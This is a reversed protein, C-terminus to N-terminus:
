SASEVIVRGKMFPHPTCHYDYEGPENFRVSYSQGKKMMLGDLKEDGVVGAKFAVNHPMAEVNEWTVVDGPKITVEPQQYKLKDITVTVVDGSMEAPTSVDTTLVEVKDQALAPVGSSLALVLSALVLRSKLVSFM